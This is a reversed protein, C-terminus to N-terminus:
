YAFFLLLFIKKLCIPNNVTQICVGHKVVATRENLGPVKIKSKFKITSTLCSGLIVRTVLAIM